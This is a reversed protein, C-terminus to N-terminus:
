RCVRRYYIDVKAGPAPATAFVVSNTAGDYSWGSTVVAGNVRVVISGADPLESLPFRDQASFAKTAVARLLPAYDASCVSLM